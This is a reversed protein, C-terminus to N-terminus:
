RPPRERRGKEFDKSVNSDVGKRTTPKEHVLPGEFQALIVVLPMCSRRALILNRSDQIMSTQAIGM